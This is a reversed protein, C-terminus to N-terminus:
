EGKILSLLKTAIEMINFSDLNGLSLEQLFDAIDNLLLSLLEEDTLKMIEKKSESPNKGIQKKSLMTEASIEYVVGKRNSHWLRIVV